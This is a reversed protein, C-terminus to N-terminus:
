TSRGNNPMLIVKSKPIESNKDKEDPIYLNNLKCIKDNCAEMIALFRPDGYQNEKSTSDEKFVQKEKSEYGEEDKITEVKEKTQTKVKPKQSKFFESHALTYMYLYRREALALARKAEELRDTRLEDLTSIIDNRVQERSIKIDLKEKKYRANILDALEQQSKYGQLLNDLILKKDREIQIETRKNKAM